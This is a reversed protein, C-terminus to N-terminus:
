SNELKLTRRLNKGFSPMKFHAKLFAQQEQSLAPLQLYGTALLVLAVLILGPTMLLLFLLHLPKKLRLWGKKLKPYKVKSRVPLPPFPASGIEGSEAYLSRSYNALTNLAM